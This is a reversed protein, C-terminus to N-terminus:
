VDPMMVYGLGIRTQIMTEGIKKRLRRITTDVTRIDGEYDMGWVHDLM